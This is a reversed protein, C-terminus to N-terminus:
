CKQILYFFIELDWNELLKLVCAVMDSFRIIALHKKWLNLFMTCRIHCFFLIPKKQHYKPRRELLQQYFILWIEFVLFHFIPKENTEVFQADEMYDQGSEFSKKQNIICMSIQTHWRYITYVILRLNFFLFRFISKKNTEACHADKVHIHGSRLPFPPTPDAYGYIPNVRYIKKKTWFLIKMKLKRSFKWILLFTTISRNWDFESICVNWFYIKFVSLKRLWKTWQIAFAIINIKYCIHFSIM